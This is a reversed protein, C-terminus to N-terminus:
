WVGDCALIIFLDKKDISHTEAVEPEATVFESLYFDGLGRSVALIGKVRGIETVFGLRCYDDDDDPFPIM